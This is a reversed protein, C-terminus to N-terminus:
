DFRSWRTEDWMHIHNNQDGNKGNTPKIGYCNVAAKKYPPTWIKVGTGGNGCGRMTRTNIPYKARNEGDEDTDAVWGTSCWDAGNQQAYELQKTTALVAGNKRCISDAEERTHKYGKVQFVEPIKYTNSETGPEIATSKIIAHIQDQSLEEQYIRLDGIPLHSSQHDYIGSGIVQRYNYDDTNSPPAYGDDKTHNLVGNIYFSWKSLGEDNPSSMTWAIHSWDKSLFSYFFSWKVNTFTPTHIVFFLNHSWSFITILKQPGLQFQLLIRLNTKTTDKKKDVGRVWFCTSAATGDFIVRDNYNHLPINYDYNAFDYYKIKINNPIQFLGGDITIDNVIDKTDLRQFISDTNNSTEVQAQIMDMISDVNNTNTSAIADGTEYGFSSPKYRFYNFYNGSQTRIQEPVSVTIEDSLTEFGEIRYNNMMNNNMCQFGENLAKVANSADEITGNMKSENYLREVQLGNLPDQYFHVDKLVYSQRGSVKPINEYWEAHNDITQSGVILVQDQKNKDLEVPLANHSHQFVLKGDMYFMTKNQNFVITCFYPRNINLKFEEIVKWWSHGTFVGSYHDSATKQHLIMSSVWHGLYVALYPPYTIPDDIKTDISRDSYYIIRQPVTSIQDLYIWYSMSYSRISKLNLNFFKKKPRNENKGYRLYHDWCTDLSKPISHRAFGPKVSEYYQKWDFNDKTLETTPSLDYIVGSEHFPDNIEKAILASNSWRNKYYDLTTNDTKIPILAKADIANKDLESSFPEISYFRERYYYVFLLLFFAIALSVIGIHKITEM